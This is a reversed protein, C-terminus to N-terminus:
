DIAIGLERTYEGFKKDMNTAFELCKKPDWGLPVLNSNGVIRKFSPHEMSQKFGQYLIDIKWDPTGAPAALFKVEFADIVDYGAEKFTPVDPVLPEREPFGVALVRVKDNILQAALFTAFTGFDVHGGAVMNRAEAGGKPNPVETCEIGAQKMFDIAMIWHGGRGASTWQLEGPNAKAYAVLDDLTQFPSDIPVVLGTSFTVVGIVPKFDGFVDIPLKDVHKAMTFDVNGWGHLLTYGDPKSEAVFKSAVMSNGGAKNVIMAPQDNLYESATAALARASMDTSGGPNAPVIIKIPKSPFTEATEEASGEAAVPLLVLAMFVATIIVTSWKVQNKMRIEEQDSKSDSM